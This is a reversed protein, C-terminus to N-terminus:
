LEDKPISGDCLDLVDSCLGQAFSADHKLALKLLTHEHEDWFDQCSELLPGREAKRIPHRMPLEDCVESMMGVLRFYPDTKAKNPRDVSSSVMQYLDIVLAECMDCEDATLPSYENPLEDVGCADIQANACVSRKM